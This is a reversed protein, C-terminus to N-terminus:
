GRERGEDPAAAAGVVAARLVSEDGPRVTRLDLVLRDDAVRAVVPPRGARLAAALRTPGLAPHVVTVLATPVEVM